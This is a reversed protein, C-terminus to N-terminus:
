YWKYRSWIELPSWFNASRMSPDAEANIASASRPNEKKITHLLGPLVTAAFVIAGYKALTLIQDLCHVMPNSLFYDSTLSPLNFVGWLALATVTATLLGSKILPITIPTKNKRYNELDTINYDSM